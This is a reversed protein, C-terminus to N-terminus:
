VGQKNRGCAVEGDETELTKRVIGSRGIEGGFGAVGEGIVRIECLDQPNHSITAGVIGRRSLVELLAELGTIIVGFNKTIEAHGLVVQFGGGLAFLAKSPGEVEIESGL